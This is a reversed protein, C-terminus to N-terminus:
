SRGRPCPFAEELTPLQLLFGRNGVSPPSFSARALLIDGSPWRASGKTLSGLLLWLLLNKKGETCGARQAEPFAAGAAWLQTRGQSPVLGEGGSPFSEAM